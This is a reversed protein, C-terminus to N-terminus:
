QLVSIFISYQPSFRLCFLLITHKSNEKIVWSPFPYVSKQVFQSLDQKL